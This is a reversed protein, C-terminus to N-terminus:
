GNMKSYSIKKHRTHQNGVEKVIEDDYFISFRRESAESLRSRVHKPLEEDLTWLEHRKYEKETGDEFQVHFLTHVSSGKFKAGYLENDTWKVQVAAGIPPPINPSYGVIDEPFTDDSFSGDDFDLSYFTQHEIKIVGAKYYRTNRHKAFVLDGIELQTVKREKAMVKEKHTGHKNCTVYVPFPWDSTEFMVGAAYACTVHFSSTCRGLSCQVCMGSSQDSNKMPSCYYCKLKSRDVNMDDTNIPERRSPNEFKVEPLTLACVIHAWKGDTTPKLAGGRLCCLSCEASLMQRTCRTCRWNKTNKPVDLVGYCSAHVCIKCEQCVLLPSLGDKDLSVNHIMPRPNEPSCVFCMEPIMPLSKDPLSKMYSKVCKKTLKINEEEDELLYQLPKFLSCIICHPAKRCVRMNFEQEAEFNLLLHQWLKKVPRSWPESMISNLVIAHDAEKHPSGDSSSSTSSKKSRKPESEEKPKSKKGSAEKMKKTTDMLHNIAKEINEKQQKKPSKKSDDSTSKRKKAVKEHGHEEQSTMEDGAKHKGNSMKKNGIFSSYGSTQVVTRDVDATPSSMRYIPSKPNSTSCVSHTKSPSVAYEHHSPSSMQPATTVATSVSSVQSIPVIPQPVLQLVKNPSVIAGYSQDTEMGKIVSSASNVNATSNKVVSTKDIVSPPCSPTTVLSQFVPTKADVKFSSPTPHLQTVGQLLFQTTGTFQPSGGFQPLTKHKVATGLVPATIGKGATVLQSSTTLLGPPKSQSVICLGANRPVQQPTVAVTLPQSISSPSQGNLTQIPQQKLINVVNQQSSGVPAAVQIARIPLNPVISTPQLGQVNQIAKSTGPSTIGYVGVKRSTDSNIITSTKGPATAPVVNVVNVTKTLLQNNVVSTTVVPKVLVQLSSSNAQNTVKQESQNVISVRGQSAKLLQGVTQKSTVDITSLKNAPQNLRVVDVVGTSSNVIVHKQKGQSANISTAATSSIIGTTTGSHMVPINVLFTQQQSTPTTSHVNATPARLPNQLRAAASAANLYQFRMPTEPQAQHAPQQTLLTNSTELKRGQLQGAAQQRQQLNAKHSIMKAFTLSNVASQKTAPPSSYPISGTAAASLLSLNSTSTPSGLGGHDHIVGASAEQMNVISTPNLLSRPSRSPSIATSRPSKSGASCPSKVLETSSGVSDRKQNVMNNTLEFIQNMSSFLSKQQGTLKLEPKMLQAELESKPPTSTTQTNSDASSRQPSTNINSMEGQNQPLSQITNRKGDMALTLDLAHSDHADTTSVGVTKVYQTPNQVSPTVVTLKSSGSLKPSLAANEANAAQAHDSVRSGSLSVTNAGHSSVILDGFTLGSSSGFTPSGIAATKVGKSNQLMKQQKIWQITPMLFNLRNFETAQAKAKTESLPIFSYSSKLQPNEKRPKKKPIIQDVSRVTEVTPQAAYVIESKVQKVDNDLNGQTEGELLDEAKIIEVNLEKVKEAEEPVKIKRKRYQRPKPPAEEVVSGPRLAMAASRAAVLSEFAAQFSAPSKKNEQAEKKVVDKLYVDIKRKSPEDSDSSKGTQSKDTESKVDAEEETTGGYDDSEDTSESSSSEKGDTNQPKEKEKVKKKKKAKHGNEITEKKIAKSARSIPHRKTQVTGSDNAKQHDSDRHKNYLKSQDDEPHPGIDKGNKWAQYREPQFRKVFCDMSIKVGDKRCTCQLCRKGYEIWRRTAFNTSEACNFGHNYGAHYGYPFTIMFEGAEQTIKNFPISYQKLMAPSILTMKHRLFAPCAQFSSPFFGQALRELRRGHEPPIAYWSKPAGFHLYNISYLDMDETHWPFTTKWMGFYLYATNVGEIKIGYDGNVYDLITGLRQINWYDQDDDYLSGSIDAGYIPNVFTINKWYKRELEEYDFHRPTRYRDSNALKEFDKVSMGKKQINFQQYLGQCGTVVQTIPAPITLEIDDYGARRPKWEAPPIVKAVGAKHAGQSEMYEVFKTFDKFEEMTPRFVMIKPISNGGSSSEM